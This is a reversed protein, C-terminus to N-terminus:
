NPRFPLSLRATEPQPRELDTDFVRLPTNGALDELLGDVVIRYEGRRWAAQPTFAWTTEGAGVRIHGQVAKNQADRVEIFRSLLPQDLPEGFELQVAGRSAPHPASLKWRQPLPREHDPDTTKFKKTYPKGLPQGAADLVNADIVLTYSKGPTLVPGFEERLNVGRKVRGPHIWLTFRRADSSWLETRRWPDFVKEGHEDLLHLQDFIARGERMPRSFHIYFKLHNAPLVDASPYIKEVTAAPTAQRAPATYVATKDKGAPLRLTAQYRQGYSLGYKPTFVLGGQRRRYSGFIAPGTQGDANLLRLSLIPSAGEFGLPAQSLGPAEAVVEVRRPDDGAVIRVNAGADGAALMAIWLPLAVM